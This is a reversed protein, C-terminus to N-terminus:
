LTVSQGVGTARAQRYVLHAAVLDEMAHGMAKYVTLETASRRGPLRGLLVEGLETGVAPDLGALEACGAPPVGFAQRTEVFLRGADAIRRDLEGGPPAFGVSSLHTGPALWEVQVVPARGSTCLCVVDAGDVAAEFSAVARARPDLQALREADGLHLSAIRIEAFPRVRPVMALHSRGQTGAGIIALVRTDPRALVRASLAAAGATRMATIYTGAMVAVPTGTDAEFLCIVAQHTPIGRRENGEFVSVLKIGVESGPQWGPMALVLGADPVAVGIRPPAVVRQESLARFGEALADLLGDLDLLRRVEVEGLIVVRM